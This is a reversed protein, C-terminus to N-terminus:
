ENYKEFILKVMYQCDSVNYRQDIPLPLLYNALNAEFSGYRTWDLVNNWYTPIFINRKILYQKLGKKSILLPYCMPIQEDNNIFNLENIDKLQSHLFNFNNIRQARICEYNISKLLAQTLNSMKKISQNELHAENKCFNDYGNTASDDIRKLLHGMRKFSKDQQFDIDLKKNISLYAGDPVGFFKRASYFTDIGEMPIDFFAQSNDVIVNTFRLTYKSIQDKMIGFYNNILIVENSKLEKNFLLNMENDISYFEYVLNLKKIPELVAECTYYPIYVKSYGRARLIYELCNRGTNLKVLNPYYENKKDLELEFYGGIANSWNM